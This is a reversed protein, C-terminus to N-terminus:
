LTIGFSHVTLSREGAKTRVWGGIAKPRVKRIDYSIAGDGLSAEMNEPGNGEAVRRRWDDSLKKESQPDGPSLYEVTISIPSWDPKQPIWYEYKYGTQTAESIHFKYQPFSETIVPGVHKEQIDKETQHDFAWVAMPCALIAALARMLFKMSFFRRTEPM